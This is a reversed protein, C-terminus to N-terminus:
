EFNERNKDFYFVIYDLLDLIQKDNYRIDHGFQGNIILIGQWTVEEPYPELLWKWKPFSVNKNYNDLHSANNRLLYIVQFWNMTHFKAWHSSENFFHSIMEFVNNLVRTRLYHSNMLLLRNCTENFGERCFNSYDRLEDLILQPTLVFSDNIKEKSVTLFFYKSNTLM